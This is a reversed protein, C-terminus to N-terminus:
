LLGGDYDQELGSSDVSECWVHKLDALQRKGEPKGILINCANEDCRTTNCIEGVMDLM